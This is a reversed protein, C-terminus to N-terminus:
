VEEERLVNDLRVIDKKENLKRGGSRRKLKYKAVIVGCGCVKVCVRFLRV